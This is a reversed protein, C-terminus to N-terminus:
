DSESGNEEEFDKELIESLKIDDKFDIKKTKFREIQKINFFEILRKRIYLDEKVGKEFNELDRPNIKLMAALQSSSLGRDIRAMRVKRRFDDERDKSISALSIKPANFRRPKYAILLRKNVEDENLPSIDVHDSDMCASCIEIMKTGEVVSHKDEDLKELGCNDCIFSM